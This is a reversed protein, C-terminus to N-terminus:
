RRAAYDTNPLRLGSQRFAPPAYMHRRRSQSAKNSRTRPQEILTAVVRPNSIYIGHDGHVQTAISGARESMSRQADIPIMRDETVKLYWSPRSKWAPDTVQGNIADVGFPVQSNAMFEATDADLDNAFAAPFKARDQFLYGDKPPLIPLAPAGPSSKAILASVSEGKDPAFAAFYVLKAVKPHTGAETLVAGGYSHGVLIVPGPQEDLVLKVAAVDSPLSITPTQVIRVNFGDHTLINYVGAL